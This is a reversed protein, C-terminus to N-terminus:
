NQREGLQIYGDLATLVAEIEAYSRTAATRREPWRIRFHQQCSTLML